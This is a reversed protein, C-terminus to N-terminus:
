NKGALYLFGGNKTYTAHASNISDAKMGTIKPTYSSDGVIYVDNLVTGAMKFCGGNRAATCSSIESKPLMKLYNDTGYFIAIGGEEDM